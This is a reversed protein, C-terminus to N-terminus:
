QKVKREKITQDIAQALDYVAQERVEEYLARLANHPTAGAQPDDPAWERVLNDVAAYFQKFNM